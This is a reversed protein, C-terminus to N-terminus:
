QEMDLSWIDKGSRWYLRSSLQQKSLTSSGFTRGWIALDDGGWPNQYGMASHQSSMPEPQVMWITALTEFLPNSFLGLSEAEAQVQLSFPSQSKAEASTLVGYMMQFVSSRVVAKEFDCGFGIVLRQKPDHNSALGVGDLVKTYIAAAQAEGALPPVFAVLPSQGEEITGETLKIEFHIGDERYAAVTPGMADRGKERSQIWLHVALYAEEFKASESLPEVLHLCFPHDEMITSIADIFDHRAKLAMETRVDVSNLGEALFLFREGFPSTMQVLGSKPDVVYDVICGKKEAAVLAFRLALYSSASLDDCQELVAVASASLSVGVRQDKLTTM